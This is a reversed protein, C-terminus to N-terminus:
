FILLFQVGLTTLDGLDWTLNTGDNLLAGDDFDYFYLEPRITFGKAVSIPLSIGYAQQDMDLNDTSLAPNADNDVDQYGYSLWLAAPGFKFGGALWFGFVESDTIRTNGANDVYLVPRGGILFQAAPAGTLPLAPTHNGIGLNEGWNVEGMLTLPGFGAKIHCSAGWTDVDDDSGAAVQEYEHKLWSVTPTIEFNALKLRLALDFRPITNEEAPTYGAIQAAVNANAPLGAGLDNVRNDPDIVAFELKVNENFTILAKINDRNSPQFNGFGILFTHVFAHGQYPPPVSGLSFSQPSRGIQLSFNPNINWKIYAYYWRTDVTGAQTNAMGRIEVFGEVKKDDSVYRVNFRNFGYPMTMSTQEQGDHFNQTGQRVGGAAAEGDFDRYMLDMTVWGGVTVKATAPLAFGLCLLGAMMIILFKKM